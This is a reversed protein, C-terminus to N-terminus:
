LTHLSKLSGINVDTITIYFVRDSFGKKCYIQQLEEKNGNKIRVNSDLTEGSM